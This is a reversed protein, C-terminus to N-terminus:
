KILIKNESLPLLFFVLQTGRAHEWSPVQGAVWTHARVPFRVLSGKTQLGANLGSLWVLWPFNKDFINQFLLISKLRKFINLVLLLHIPVERLLHLCCYSFVKLLM